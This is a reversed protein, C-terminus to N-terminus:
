RCGCGLRGEGPPRRPRVSLGAPHGSRRCLGAAARAPFPRRRHARGARDRFARTAALDTALIAAKVPGIAAPSMSLGRFGLAALVVAELPKGGMEGCLTLPTGTAAAKDAVLKLARLSPPSLVDFRGSVRLNDRDAAFLYQLLDNSGVSMFDVQACIEELQWLLSPVELMVGLAVGTPLKHGYRSLYAREQDVVAKAAQFEEVTAIMPFMIRM